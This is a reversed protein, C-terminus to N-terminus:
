SSLALSLTYYVYSRSKGCDLECCVIRFSPRTNYRQSADALSEAHQEKESALRELLAREHAGEASRLAEAHREALTLAQSTHVAHMSELEAQLQQKASVASCHDTRLAQLQSQLAVAQEGHEAGKGVLVALREAGLVNRRRDDEEVLLEGERGLAEGSEVQEHRLRPQLRALREM